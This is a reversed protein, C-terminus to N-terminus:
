RRVTLSTLLLSPPLSPAKSPARAGHFFGHRLLQQLYSETARRAVADLELGAATLARKDTIKIGPAYTTTLVRPGCVSWHVTPM